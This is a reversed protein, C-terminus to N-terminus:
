RRRGWRPSRGAAAAPAPGAGGRWTRVVLVGLVMGALDAATDWPDSQRGGTLWGQLPESVLAHLALVLLAGRSGLLAALATPVAFLGLHAVKDLHPVVFPEGGGTLLYLGWVQVVLAAGFGTWAVTRWHPM